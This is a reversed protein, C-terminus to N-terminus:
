RLVDLTGHIARDVDSQFFYRGPHLGKVYYTITARGTVPDGRFVAPGCTVSSVGSPFRSVTCHPRSVYISLNNSGMVENSLTITFPSNAPVSLCSSSLAPPDGSVIVSAHSSTAGCAGSGSSLIQGEQGLGKLSVVATIPLGLLIVVSTVMGVRRVAFRRFRTRNARAALKDYLSRAEEYGLIPEDASLRHKM